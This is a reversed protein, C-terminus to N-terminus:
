VHFTQSLSCVNIKLRRFFVIYVNVRIKKKKYFNTYLDKKLINLYFKVHLIM